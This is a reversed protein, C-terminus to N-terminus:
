PKAKTALALKNVMASMTLNPKIATAPKNKTAPQYGISTYQNPQSVKNGISQIQKPNFITSYTKGNKDPKSKDNSGFIYKVVEKVGETRIEVRETRADQRTQVNENKAEANTQANIIKPVIYAGAAILAGVLLIKEIKVKKSCWQM